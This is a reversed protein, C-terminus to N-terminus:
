GGRRGKTPVASVHVYCACACACHCVHEIFCAYECSPPHHVSPCCWEWRCCCCCCCYCHVCISHIDLGCEWDSGVALVHVVIPCRDGLADPRLAYAVAM